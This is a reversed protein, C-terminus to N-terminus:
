TAEVISGQGKSHIHVVDRLGFKKQERVEGYQAVAATLCENVANMLNKTAYQWFFWVKLVFLLAAQISSFAKCTFVSPLRYINSQGQVCWSDSLSFCLSDQWVQHFSNNLSLLLRTFDDMVIRKLSSGHTQTLVKRNIYFLMNVTELSPGVKFVEKLGRKSTLPM